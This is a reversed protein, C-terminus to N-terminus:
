PKILPLYQAPDVPQGLKRIEFHLSVQDSDSDGMEAIKQGKGVSQGEKVLVQDNHAYASLYTKNHKIIVLKGYGRLGSGSYVVKGAASAVIAQGRKGAIDVGKNSGTDSFSALINGSTPMGWELSEEEDGEKAVGPTLPASAAPVVKPTEGQMAEAKALANESYPIKAVKPQLKLGGPPTAANLLLPKSEAVKAAVPVPIRLVQGINIESPNAINNLEALERYDVSHFFAISYMTDGKQVVYNKTEVVKKAQGNQESSSTKNAPKHQSKSMETGFEVIPAPRGGSMNKHTACGVLIIASNVLLSWHLISKIITGNKTDLITM